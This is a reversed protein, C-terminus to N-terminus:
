ENLDRQGKRRIKGNQQKSEARGDRREAKESNEEGYKRIQKMKEIKEVGGTEGERKRENQM